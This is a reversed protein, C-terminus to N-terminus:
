QDRGFIDNLDRAEVVCATWQRLQEKSGAALKQHFAEPIAGFRHELLLTLVEAMGQTEGRAAGRAEGRAEGRKYIISQTEDVLDFPMRELEEIAIIEYGRLQSLLRLRDVNELLERDPLGKWSALVKRITERPDGSDCLLALVREADNASDLFVAAPVDRMALIEFRYECRPRRIECKMDLPGRGLYVVVQIVEADDWLEQITGYYHFCRWHMRADNNLQFELHLIKDDALRAVVDAVLKPREPFEVTLYEAVPACKLLRVLAPMADYFITKLLNDYKV